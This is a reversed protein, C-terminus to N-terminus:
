PWRSDKDKIIFDHMIDIVAYAPGKASIYERIGIRNSHRRTQMRHINEGYVAGSNKLKGYHYFEVELIHSAVLLFRMKNFIARVQVRRTINM